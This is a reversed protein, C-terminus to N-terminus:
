PKEDDINHGHYRSSCGWDGGCDFCGDSIYASVGGGGVGSFLRTYIKMVVLTKREEEVVVCMGM